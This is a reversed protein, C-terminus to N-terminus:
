FHVLKVNDIFVQPVTNFNPPLASRLFIQYSQANLRFIDPSIEFYIKKWAGGSPNMGGKETVEDPAGARKAILGVSVAVNSNYHLELYVPSSTNPLQLNSYNFSTGVWCERNFTDFVMQGSGSGEFVEDNQVRMFTNPNQDLNDGFVVGPGEFNDIIIFKVLSNYSQQPLLTDIRGQQLDLSIEYPDFFPYPTRSSSIGNKEIGATVRVLQNTATDSIIAPLLTPMNTAGIVQGDVSIWADIFNHRASGQVATDGAVFNVYPVYIYAPIDPNKDKICAVAM